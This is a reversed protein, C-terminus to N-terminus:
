MLAASCGEQQPGAREPPAECVQFAATGQHMSPTANLQGGPGWSGHQPPLSGGAEPRKRRGSVHM